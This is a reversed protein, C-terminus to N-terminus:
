QNSYALWKHPKQGITRSIILAQSDWNSVIRIRIVAKSSCSTWHKIASSGWRNSSAAQPAQGRQASFVGNLIAQVTIIQAQRPDSKHKEQSSKKEKWLHSYKQKPRSYSRCSPKHNRDRNKVCFARALRQRFYKRLMPIRRVQKRVLRFRGIELFLSLGM